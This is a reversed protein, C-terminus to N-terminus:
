AVQFLRRVQLLFELVLLLFIIFALSSSFVCWLPLEILVVFLYGKFDQKIIQQNFLLHSCTWGWFCFSTCSSSSLTQSCGAICIHIPHSHSDSSSPNGQAASWVEALNLHCQQKCFPLLSLCIWLLWWTTFNNISM